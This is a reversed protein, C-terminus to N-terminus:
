SERIERMLMNYWHIYASPDLTVQEDNCIIGTNHSLEIFEWTFTWVSKISPFHMTRHTMMEMILRNWSIGGPMAEHIITYLVNLAAPESAVPRNFLVRLNIM